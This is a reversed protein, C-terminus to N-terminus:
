AHAAIAPAHDYVSGGADQDYHCEDIMMADGTSGCVIITISQDTDATLAHTRATGPGELQALEDGADLIETAQQANLHTIQM